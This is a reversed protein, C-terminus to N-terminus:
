SREQRGGLSSLDPRGGLRQVTSGAAASALEGARRPDDGRRLAALLGAVFADGAGTRDVVPVDAHPFLAHDGDWVLVDGVDPVALAVLDPGHALVQKGVATADDVTEVAHGAILEAETADARLVDVSPLLEDLAEADPAGDVMVLAGLRAAYRAAALVTTRPQQAQISVVEASRFLASCRDLDDVTVLSTEPVDEVLMRDGRADVVDVLLATPGRRPVCSVDIGDRAAQRLLAAGQIDDGAVAVLATPVRLQSLGVAQNAGKGGLMERRGSGPVSGGPDPLDDVRVVVDRGMQGIVVVGVTDTHGNDLADVM